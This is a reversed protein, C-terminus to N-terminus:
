KITDIARLVDLYFRAEEPTIRTYSRSADRPIYTGSELILGIYNGDKDFFKFSGKETRKLTGVFGGSVGYMEWEGDGKQKATIQESFASLVSFCLLFIMTALAIVKRM